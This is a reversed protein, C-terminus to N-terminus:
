YVRDGREAHASSPVACGKFKSNESHIHNINKLDKKRNALISDDLVLNDGTNQERAFTIERSTLKRNRIISNLSLTAQALDLSSIPKAEPSIKVLEKELEQIARDVIAMSNKNMTDGFELTLKLKELESANSKSLSTFGQANDVRVTIPGPTRTTSTTAIIGELLDSASESKILTTTVFDSFVDRTVFIVQRARRLVDSTFIVGPSNSSTVSSFSQM